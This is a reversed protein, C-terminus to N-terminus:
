LSIEQFLMIKPLLKLDLLSMETINIQQQKNM